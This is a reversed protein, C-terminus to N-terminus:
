SRKKQASNFKALEKMNMGSVRAHALMDSDDGLDGEQRPHSAQAETNDDEDDERLLPDEQQEAEVEHEDESPAKQTPSPKAEANSASGTSTRKNSRLRPM